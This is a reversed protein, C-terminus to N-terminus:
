DVLGEGRTRSAITDGIRFAARRIPADDSAVYERTERTAPFWITVTRAGVTRVEGLGLEPESVSIWRQGPTFRSNTGATGAPVPTLGATRLAPLPGPFRSGDIRA